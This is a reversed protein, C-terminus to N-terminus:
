ALDESHDRGKLNKVLIRYVKKIDGMRAVYGALRVRRFIIVRIINPSACLNHLGENHLRRWGGV